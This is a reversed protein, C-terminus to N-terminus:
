FELRLLKLIRHCILYTSEQMRQQLRKLSVALLVFIGTALVGDGIGRIHKLRWIVAGVLILVVGFIFSETTLIRSLTLTGRGTMM